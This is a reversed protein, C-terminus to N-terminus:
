VDSVETDDTAPEYDDLFDRGYGCVDGTDTDKVLWEGVTIQEGFPRIEIRNVSPLHTEFQDGAFIECERGNVDFGQYQIAEVTEKRRYRMRQGKPDDDHQEALPETM